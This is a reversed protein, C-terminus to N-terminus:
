KKLGWVYQYVEAFQRNKLFNAVESPVDDYSNGFETNEVVNILNEQKVINLKCSKVMEELSYKTFFSIHTQDLLGIDRYTFKNNILDIIVSNHSINPISIWIMGDPKLFYSSRFLAEAPYMLHELVDAFIIFDFKKNDILLKNYWNDSEIDGLKNGIFSLDAFQAADYGCNDKEIITVNCNLNQKLYKTMRGHACGFELVDSNASINNIIVSNSNITSMDLNFDYPM